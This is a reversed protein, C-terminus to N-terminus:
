SGAWPIAASPSSSSASPRGSPPGTWEPATSAAAPARRMPASSASGHTASWASREVDDSSYLRVGEELVRGRLELPADGLYRLDVECGLDRSLDAALLMEVAIPLAGRKAGALYYGIDLDSDPRPRGAVRSGYAYAVLIGHGRFRAAVARRAREILDESV